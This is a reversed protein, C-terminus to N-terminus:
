PLRVGELTLFKVVSLLPLGVISTFDSTQISEFLALGQSEIKYAGASMLPQDFQVYREIAEPSLKRMKLQTPILDIYEKGTPAIVTVGTLLAHTQGQMRQLQALARENTRPKHLLEGEFLCAQDGGIIFAEPHQARLSKAKELSLMQVLAEPALHSNKNKLAEEDCLPQLARFPLGLTELQVKRFPSTSALILAPYNM